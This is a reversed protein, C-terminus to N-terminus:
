RHSRPWLAQAPQFDVNLAALVVIERHQYLFQGPGVIRISQHDSATNMEVGVIRRERRETLNLHLVEIQSDVYVGSFVPLFTKPLAKLM